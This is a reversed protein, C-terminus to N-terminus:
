PEDKGRARIAAAILKGTVSKHRDAKQACAEREAEVATHIAETIVDVIAYASKEGGVSVDDMVKRAREEPTMEAM